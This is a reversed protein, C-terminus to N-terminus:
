KHKFKDKLKRINKKSDYLLHELENARTQIGRTLKMAEDIRDLEIASIDMNSHNLKDLAANLLDIPTDQEKKQDFFIM